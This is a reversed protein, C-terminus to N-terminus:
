SYRNAYYSYVVIVRDSKAIMNCEKLSFFFKGSREVRTLNKNSSDKTMEFNKNESGKAVSLATNINDGTVM